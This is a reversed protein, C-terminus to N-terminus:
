SAPFTMRAIFGGPDYIPAVSGGSNQLAMQIVRSGFGHRRPPVVPPGGRERWVVVASGDPAPEASLEVRGAPVSLAGYKVANTALEHLLLALGTAADGGIEVHSVAPDLHFRRLDFPALVQAALQSVAVARGGSAMAIDQSSALAGLRALLVDALAEASEAGRAAQKVMAMMVSLANKGRHALERVQLQRREDARKRDTIDLGTGHLTRAGNADRIMRGRALIWRLEGDPRLVRYESVYDRGDTATFAARLGAAVRDRDEPHVYSLSREMTIPEGEPVGMIEYIRPSWTIRDPASRDWQFVGVGSVDLALRLRQQEALLQRSMRRAETVDSFLGTWVIADESLRKPSSQIRRWVRSSDAARMAVTVDCTRGAALAEEKAEVLRERDEPAFLKALSWADALLREPALGTLAECASGVQVFRGHRGRGDTIMQFPMGLSLAEAAAFFSPADVLSAEITDMM